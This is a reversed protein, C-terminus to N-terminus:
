SRARRSASWPCFCRRAGAETRTPNNSGVTDGLISGAQFQVKNGAGYTANTMDGALTCNVGLNVNPFVSQAAGVVVSGTTVDVTGTGLAGDGNAEYEGWMQEAMTISTLGTVPTNITVNPVIFDPINGELKINVTKISVAAPTNITVHGQGVTVLNADMDASIVVDAGRYDARFEQVIMPVQIDYDGFSGVQFLNAKVYSTKGVSSDALTIGGLGNAGYCRRLLFDGPDYGRGWLDVIGGAMDLVRFTESGTANWNSDYTYSYWDNVSATEGEFQPVAGGTWNSPDFYLYTGVPKTIEGTALNADHDYTTLFDIQTAAGALGALCLAVAAVTIMIRGNSMHGSRMQSTVSRLIETAKPPAPPGAAAFCRRRASSFLLRQQRSPFPRRAPRSPWDSSTYAVPTPCSAQASTDWDVGSGDITGVGLTISGTTTFVDYETLADVTGGANVLKLIWGDTLTVNGTVDITDNDAAGLEWEYTSTAAFSVNGAVAALAGVGDGPAVTGGTQATIAKVSGDGTLFTGTKVIATSSDISGTVKLTGANINTNGTYTNVGALVLTGAETKTLQRASTDGDSITGSLVTYDATSNPNDYVRVERNGRLEINNTLTM